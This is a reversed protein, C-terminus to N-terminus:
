MIDVVLIIPLSSKIGLGFFAPGASGTGFALINFNCTFWVWFLQHIRKDTRKSPPVPSIRCVFRWKIITLQLFHFIYIRTHVCGHTEVGWKLLVHTLKRFVGWSERTDDDQVEDGAESTKTRGTNVEVQTQSELKSEISHVSEKGATDAPMASASIASKEAM